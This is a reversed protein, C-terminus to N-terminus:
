PTVRPCLESGRCAVVSRLENAGAAGCVEERVTAVCHDLKVRDIGNACTTAPDLELALDRRLHRVCDALSGRDGECSLDRTCRAQALESAATDTPVTEMSAATLTTESVASEPQDRRCSTAGVAIATVTLVVVVCRMALKEIAGIQMATM